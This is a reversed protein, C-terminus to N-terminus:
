WGWCCRLSGQAEVVESLWRWRGLGGTAARCRSIGPGQNRGGSDYGNWVGVVIRGLVVLGGLVAAGRRVLVETEVWGSRVAPKTRM